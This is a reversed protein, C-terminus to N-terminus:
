ALAEILEADEVGIVAHMLGNTDDLANKAIHYAVSQANKGNVRQSTLVKQKLNDDVIYNNLSERIEDDGYSGTVADSETNQHLLWALGLLAYASISADNPFVSHLMQSASIFYDDDIGLGRKKSNDWVSKLGGLVKSDDTQNLGEVELKCNALLELVEIAQPDDYVTMSKFIEDFTMKEMDANRMKFLKAETKQAEVSTVGDMHVYRTAKIHKLGCLGAMICRRLGDWVYLKGDREAIDIVGAGDFSFGGHLIIKKIIKRLRIRRQYTMDVYLERLPVNSGDQELYAQKIGKLTKNQLNDIALIADIIEQISVVGRLTALAASVNKYKTGHKSLISNGM